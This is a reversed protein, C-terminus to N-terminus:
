ADFVYDYAVDMDGIGGAGTIKHTQHGTLQNAGGSIQECDSASLTKASQYALVRKTKNEM